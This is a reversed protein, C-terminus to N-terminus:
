EYKQKWAEQTAVFAKFVHLQEARYQLGQSLKHLMESLLCNCDTDELLSEYLTSHLNNKCNRSPFTKESTM